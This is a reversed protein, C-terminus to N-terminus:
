HWFFIIRGSTSLTLKKFQKGNQCLELQLEQLAKNYLLEMRKMTGKNHLGEMWERKFYTVGKSIAILIAVRNRAVSLAQSSFSFQGACCSYPRCSTINDLVLAACLM